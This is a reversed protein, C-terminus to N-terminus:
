IAADVSVERGIAASRAIGDMIVNTLWVEKVDVPSPKGDRVAESFARMKEAQEDIQRIAPVTGTVGVGEVPNLYLELPNLALGAKTGLFFPRGMSDINAAWSTKFVLVAGNDFRIYASAFEEVQMDEAKWAGGWGKAVGRFSKSLVDTMMATVSVPKPHSMMVLAEDLAYIGIDVLAGFGAMDKRLFTGGPVGWRRTMVAEGYYVNGLTGADVIKKATMLMPGFRPQIAMMLIGKAKESAKVIARADELTAAIPKELLVNLGYELAAVTPERHAQNFTCISVADLREKKLMEHFDTYAHAEPLDWLKLAEAAKGPVVDAAAVIDVYPLLKYGRVHTGAIRGAGIIGVRVRDM